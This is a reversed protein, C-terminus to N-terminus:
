KRIMLFYRNKYTKKIKNKIESAETIGARMLQTIQEKVLEGHTRCFEEFGDSPKFASSLIVSSTIHQDMAELMEKQSGVYVRRKAPEKKETSKKRFYYRASKFMKDVVDGYYGLDNLRQSESKVMENNDDVWEEWAEKFDKRDDYQHIKAFKYLEEMFENTFKYRYINVAFMDVESDLEEDNRMTSTPLITSEADLHAHTRSAHHKDYSSLCLVDAHSIVNNITYEM